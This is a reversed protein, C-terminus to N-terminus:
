KIRLYSDLFYVLSMTYCELKQGDSQSEEEVSSHVLAVERVLYSSELRSFVDAIYQFVIM